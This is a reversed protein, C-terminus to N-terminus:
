QKTYVKEMKKKYAYYEDSKKFAKLEAKFGKDILSLEKKKQAATPNKMKDLARSYNTSKGQAKIMDEGTKVWEKMLRKYKALNTTTMKNTIKKALPKPEKM